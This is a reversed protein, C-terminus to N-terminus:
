ANSYNRELASTLSVVNANSRAITGTASVFQATGLGIVVVTIPADTGASAAGRQINGDYDFTIQVSSAGSVLGSQDVDADNKVIIATATGYDRGTNDGANDNTFYVVYVASADNVINDNFQLTLLALFPFNREVSAIDRFTIRNQDAISFSDIYVGTKTKLTDGVFELLDSATKGTVNGAGADIDTNQRLQYQIKEYIQEATASNGDVIVNFAYYNAGIQREGLYVDWFSLNPPTNAGSSTHNTNCIYWRGGSSVVNGVVYPTATAWATFGTGVLYTIDIGSYPADTSVDTDDHTIKLDASNSLPFSYVEYTMSAVGIDTLQSSAYAKQYERVFVKFYARRNFNGHTLDGYIQVAQNVPGTLVVDTSAAGIAQQYYVQDGAGITGLSVIGAWEELSVGAGDKLAWGGSRILQKTALDEFDWGNILEFQKSTIALLPFPFQILSADDKWEEKLFSYLAQLTVGDTTLNGAISLLIKKTATDITVEVGQNLSDPDTILAM